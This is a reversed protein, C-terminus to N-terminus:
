QCPWTEIWWDRSGSQGAGGSDYSGNGCSGGNPDVGRMLYWFAEGPTPDDGDTHQLAATDEILCTSGSTYDGFTRLTDLDGRVLDYAAAGSISLWSVVDNGDIVLEGYGAPGLGEDFEGDCDNDNFDCIEPAGPYTDPDFEGCDGCTTGGTPNCDGFCQVFGDGDGDECDPADVISDVPAMNNSPVADNEHASVAATATFTGVAEFPTVQIVLDPATAGSSLLPRTCVVPNVSGDCTWGDGGASDFFVNDSLTETVMLANAEDPGNNTVTVTYVLTGFLPVPDPADTQSIALDAQNTGGFGGFRAVFGWWTGAGDRDFAGPTTPFPSDAFWNMNTFGVVYTNGAPDLAIARGEEGDTGFNGGGLFTAYVLGSGSADLTALAVDEVGTLTAAFADPTAPFSDSWATGVIFAHGAGDTAIDEPNVGAIFTSYVLDTGVTNFKSVFGWGSDVDFAGPTTPFDTASARWGTLYANGGPDVAIGSGVEATSGGILTAYVRNGAADFKAAFADDNGSLTSDFAGASTPFDTSSTTGGVYVNGIPDIAIGGASEYGNGGLFTAFTRVPTAGGFDHCAVFVDRPGNLTSGFAGATTPFDSSETVGTVCALDASYLAIGSYDTTHNENGSGGLYSSYVLDAGDASLITVFADQNFPSAGPVSQLADPTVPFDTSRTEGTLFARGSGDVVIDHGIDGATGGLFTSWVLSSGDASLKTVFVDFGQTDGCEGGTGCSEDWAGATTPFDDSWTYGIVYTHGQADVSVGFAEDVNIGALFTSYTLVPDIVLPREADYDALRFRVRREGELVYGGAVLERGHDYEQYIVPRLLRVERGGAFLLLDGEENLGLTEVGEFELEIASPAAGPAVIFDYELQGQRGYYVVDIGPYVERYRVRRSMPVHTTWKRPDNGRLYHVRGPLPMSAVAEARADGGSLRMGVEVSGHRDDRASGRVRGPHLELIAETADLKLLYGHGRVIFDTDSGALGRGVEFALPLGYLDPQTGEPLAPDSAAFPSKATAGALCVACLILTTM